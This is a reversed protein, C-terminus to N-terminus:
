SPTGRGSPTRGRKALQKEDDSDTDLRRRKSIQRDNDNDSDTDEDEQRRKRQRQSQAQQKRPIKRGDRIVEVLTSSATTRITELCRYIEVIEKGDEVGTNQPPHEATAEM